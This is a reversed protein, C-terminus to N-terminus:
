VLNLHVIFFQDVKISKIHLLKQSYLIYIVISLNMIKKSRSKEDAYEEPIGVVYTQAIHKVNIVQPKEEKLGLEPRDASKFLTWGLYIDEDPHNQIPTSQHLTFRDEISKIAPLRFSTTEKNLNSLWAATTEHRLPKEVVSPIFTTDNKPLKEQFQDIAHTVTTMEEIHEKDAIQEVIRTMNEFAKISDIQRIPSSSISIPTM